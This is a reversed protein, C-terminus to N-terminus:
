GQQDTVIVAFAGLYGEIEAEAGNIVLRNIELTSPLEDCRRLAEEDGLAIVKGSSQYSVLSTPEFEFSDRADLASGRAKANSM